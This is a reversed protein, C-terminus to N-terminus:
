DPPCRPDGPCAVDHNAGPEIEGGIIGLLLEGTEADIAMQQKTEVMPCPDQDHCQTPYLGSLTVGWAPRQRKALERDATEQDPYMGGPTWAVQGAPGQEVRLVTIPEALETFAVAARIATAEDSIPGFPARGTSCASVLGVALLLGSLVVVIRSAHRLPRSEFGRHTAGFRMELAAGYDV